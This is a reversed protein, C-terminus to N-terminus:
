LRRLADPPVDYTAPTRGAALDSLIEAIQRDERGARAEPRRLRQRGLTRLTDAAAGKELLALYVLTAYDRGDRRLASARLAKAMREGGICRAAWAAEGRAERREWADEAPDSLNREVLSAAGATRAEAISRFIAAREDADADSKGLRAELAAIGPAAGIEALRQAALRRIDSASSSLAEIWPGPDDGARRLLELRDICSRLSARIELDAQVELARKLDDIPETYRLTVVAESLQAIPSRLELAGVPERVMAILKLAVRPAAAFAKMRTLADCAAMSILHRRDATLASLTDIAGDGGIAAIAAVARGAVSENSDTLLARLMNLGKKSGVRGIMDAVISREVYSKSQLGPRLVELAGEGGLVVVVGYLASRVEINEEVELRALIAKYCAEPKSRSIADMVVYVERRVGKALLPLIEQCYAPGGLRTLTDAAQGRVGGVPSKLLPLIKPLISADATRGLALITFELRDSAEPDAQFTALQQELIPTGAPGLIAAVHTMLPLEPVMTTDQIEVENQMADLVDPDGLLALGFVAFRKCAAGFRGGHADAVRIAKRLAAESQPGPFHGLAFAAFHYTAPDALDVESVLFPVVDPGVKILRDTIEWFYRQYDKDPDAEARVEAWIAEVSPRAREIAALQEPTPPAAQAAAPSIALATCVVLPLFRTV